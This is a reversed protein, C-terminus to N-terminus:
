IRKQCKGEKREKCFSLCFSPCSVIYIMQKKKKSGDTKLGPSVNAEKYVSKDAVQILTRRKGELADKRGDKRGEKQNRM